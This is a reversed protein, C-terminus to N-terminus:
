DQAGVASPTRASLDCSMRRLRRGIAHAWSPLLHTLGHHMGFQLAVKGRITLPVYYRPYPLHVFGNHRKFDILPTRNNRGYVYKCYFLYSLNRSTAMEVAKAILANSPRKNSHQVLSLIHLIHACRNAYVIKIFGILKGDLYAGIFDSRDRYTSLEHQVAAFGKGFHWFRQGQRTETENYIEVVGRVFEDDFPVIRVEVGRKASLRVNRRSEQPLADWWTAYDQLAISAANDPENYFPFPRPTQGPQQAFTFLDTGPMTERISSLFPVPDEISDGDWLEEDQFTAIRLVRTTVILRRGAVLASPAHVTKGKIRIELQQTTIMLQSLNAGGHHRPANVFGTIHDTTISATGDVFPKGLRNSEM